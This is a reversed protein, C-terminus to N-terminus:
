APWRGASSADKVPIDGKTTEVFQIGLGFIGREPVIGSVGLYQHAFTLRQVIGDLTDLRQLAFRGIGLVQDIQGFGLAIGAHDYILKRVEEFDRQAFNFEREVRPIDAM